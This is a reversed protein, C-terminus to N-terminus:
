AIIHKFLSLVKAIHYVMVVGKVSALGTTVFLFILNLTVSSGSVSYRM